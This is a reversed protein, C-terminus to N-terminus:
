VPPNPCTNLWRTVLPHTSLPLVKDLVPGRAGMQRSVQCSSVLCIYGSESRNLMKYSIKALMILLTFLYIFPTVIIVIEIM